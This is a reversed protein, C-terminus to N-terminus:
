PSGAENGFGPADLVAAMSGDRRRIIPYVHDKDGTRVRMVIATDPKGICDVLLGLGYRGLIHLVNDHSLKMDGFLEAVSARVTLEVFPELAGPLEAVEGM